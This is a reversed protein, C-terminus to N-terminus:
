ETFGTWPMRRAGQYAVGGSSWARERSAAALVGASRIGGGGRVGLMRASTDMIGRIHDEQESDPVPRHGDYRM